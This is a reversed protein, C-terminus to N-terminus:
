DNSSITLIHEVHAEFTGTHNKCYNTLVIAAFETEDKEDPIDTEYVIRLQGNEKEM